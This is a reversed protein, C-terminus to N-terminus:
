RRRDGVVIVETPAPKQNVAAVLVVLAVVAAVVYVIMRGLGTDRRARQRVARNAAAPTIDAWDDAPGHADYHERTCRPCIPWRCLHCRASCPWGCVCEPNM